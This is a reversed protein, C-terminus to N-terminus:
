RNREITRWERDLLGFLLDDTWEGKAWTHEVLTGEHRFGLRALLKASRENRADCEASVKHLGRDVFLHELVRGVAETAYGKGQHATTITYGIEAQRRNEHLNVGVDGILMGGVDIAYQFWGPEVPDLGAMERMFEEAVAPPFPPEWSQYRAVEPDSRYAAFAAADDPRFRRLALRDTRLTM